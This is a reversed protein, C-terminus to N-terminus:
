KLFYDYVKSLMGFLLNWIVLFSYIMKAAKM